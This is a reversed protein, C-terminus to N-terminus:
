GNRKIFRWKPVNSHYFKVFLKDGTKLNINKGKKLYKLATNNVVNSGASEFRTQGENPNIFGKSAQYITTAGPIVHNIAQKGVLEGSKKLDNQWNEEFHTKIDNQSIVKISTTKGELYADKIPTVEIEGNSLKKEKSVPKVIIYSSRSIAKASVIEKIELNIVADEEFITGSDFIVDKLVKAKFNLSETHENVPTLCEMQVEKAWVTSSIFLLVLLVFIKKM